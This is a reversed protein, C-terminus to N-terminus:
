IIIRRIKKFEYVILILLPFVFLYYIDEYCSQDTAKQNQNVQKKITNLQTDIKSSDTMHIYPIELDSAIKKLNKENIQSIAKHYGNDYDMLYEDKTDDTQAYYYKCKMYGGKKTGYGLVAGGNIYNKISAYSKLESQDTIEGDSIFFIIRTRNKSQEYSKKLTHNITSLPTNLSTGRAYLEIIPETIDIADTIMTSDKTAPIMLKADNNFTIFSFRAGDLEKIIKKCDNKVGELRPEKNKNDEANMSITNDIVFLVDANNDIRETTGNPLMFRENTLFILIIILLYSTKRKKRFIVFLILLICIPIIIYNPIIPFAKM